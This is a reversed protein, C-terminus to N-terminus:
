HAQSKILSAVIWARWGPYRIEYSGVWYEACLCEGRLFLLKGM